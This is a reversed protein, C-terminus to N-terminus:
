ADTLRRENERNKVRSVMKDFMEKDQEICVYRRGTNIAAIATTGSGATPDLVWEGPKTYTAIMYEMLAVPKGTPHLPKAEVQFDIVSVPYGTHTQVTDRTSIGYCDGGAGRSSKGGRDGKSIAPKEKEELGQPNYKTSGDCFVLIDEHKVLPRRKANLHGTAKSKRWVWQYKFMQVNSMILAASFPQSATMVIAANEKVIRKLQAWMPEFPIITDWKCATIGYPLDAFVMGIKKDPVRDLLRLCDGCWLKGYKYKM